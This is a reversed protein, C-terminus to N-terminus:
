VAEREIKLLTVKYRLAKGALPHNYDITVQEDNVSTVLAPVKHQTGERDVTMSLLMGPKLAMGEAFNKKDMTLVLEELREGFGQEAAVVFEKSEGERMGCIAESFAPIVAENGLEFCLPNEESATDFLEGEETKGAFAVVVRDKNKATEM